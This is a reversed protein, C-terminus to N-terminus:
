PPNAANVYMMAKVFGNAALPQSANGASDLSMRNLGSDGLVLNQGPAVRM